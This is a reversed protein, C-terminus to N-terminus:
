WMSSLIEYGGGVGRAWSAFSFMIIGFYFLILLVIWVIVVVIAVFISAFSMQYYKCKHDKIRQTGVIGLIFGILPSIFAFILALIGWINEEDDKPKTENRVSPTAVAKPMSLQKPKDKVLPNGTQRTGCGDCYNAIDPLQKGCKYCYKM